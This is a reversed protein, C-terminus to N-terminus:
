GTRAGDRHLILVSNRAADDMFGGCQGIAQLLTVYPTAPVPGTKTVRGIVHVVNGAPQVVEVVVRPNRLDAALLSTISKQLEMPTLGAAVVDGIPFISIRGDPRIYEEHINDGFNDARAGFNIALRDGPVMRYEPVRSWDRGITDAVAERAEPSLAEAALAPACACLMLSVTLILRKLVLHSM